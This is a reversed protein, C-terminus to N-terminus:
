RTASDPLSEPAGGRHEAAAQAEAYLEEILPRESDDGSREAYSTLFADVMEVPPLGVGDPPSWLRMAAAHDVSCAGTAASWSRALAACSEPLAAGATLLRQAAQYAASGPVGGELLSLREM